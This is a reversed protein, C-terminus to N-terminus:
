TTMRGSTSVASETRWPTARPSCSVPTWCAGRRLESLLEFGDLDPLGVDLVMADFPHERGLWLAVAATSAVDVAFGDEALGRRLVAAMRPEDEVVLVRM